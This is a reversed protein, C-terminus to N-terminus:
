ARALRRRALAGLGLLPLATRAMAITGPEPTATLNVHNSYGLSGGGSIQLTAVAAVAYPTNGTRPGLIGFASGTDFSTGNQTANQPGNTLNFSAAVSNSTNYYAQFIGALGVLTGSTLTGGMSSEVMLVGAPQTYNTQVVAIQITNTGPNISNSNVIKNTSGLLDSLTANNDSSVGTITLKFDGYSGSYSVSSFDLISGTNGAIMTFNGGNIGAEQAFIALEARATGPAGLMVTGVLATFVMILVNRNRHNRPPAVMAM